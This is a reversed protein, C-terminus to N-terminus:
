PDTLREGVVAEISAALEALDVSNLAPLDGPARVFGIEFHRRDLRDAVDYAMREVIGFIREDQITDIFWQARPGSWYPESEYGCDVKGLSGPFQEDIYRWVAVLFPFFYGWQAIPIATLEASIKRGLDEADM